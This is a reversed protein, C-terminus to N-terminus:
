NELGGYVWDKWYDTIVNNKTLEYVYVHIEHPMFIKRQQQRCYSLIISYVTDIIKNGNENMTEGMNIVLFTKIKLCKQARIIESM